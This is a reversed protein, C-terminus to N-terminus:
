RGKFKAPRKQLFAAVGEFFDESRGALRQLDREVDLQADFDRALSGDLARKILGLSKPGKALKTAVARAENMLEADDVVRWVLGWAEAKEAPLREGLLALGKARAMGVRRPLFYTSGVDPILGINCFAQLFYASRAAITIDCAFALSAGGGAAPGNVAAVIPIPLARISRVLPNFNEEISRGLDISGDAERKRDVSLDAGSCFARGAGTMLMARAGSGAVEKLAARLDTLMAPNISNLAGPRNLTLTAVDDAIELVITEYAM